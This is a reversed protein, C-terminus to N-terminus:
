HKMRKPLAAEHNFIDPSEGDLHKLPSFYAKDLKTKLQVVTGNVGVAAFIMWM